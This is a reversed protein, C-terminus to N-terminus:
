SVQWIYIIEINITQFYNGDNARNFAGNTQAAFSVLVPHFEMSTHLFVMSEAPFINGAAAM